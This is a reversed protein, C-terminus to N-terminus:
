IHILSLKDGQTTMKLLEVQLGPHAAQLMRAVYEAQWLALQSKRTAIRLPKNM